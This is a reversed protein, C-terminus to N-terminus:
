DQSKYQKEMFLLYKFTLSGDYYFAYDSARKRQLNIHLPDAGRAILIKCIELKDLKAAYILPTNLKEDPKNVDAGYEILLRVIRERNYRIAWQLTSNDDVTLNADAGRKLLFECIKFADNVIAYYLGTKGNSFECNIDAHKELYSKLLEIDGTKIAKIASKEEKDLSLVPVSWAVM